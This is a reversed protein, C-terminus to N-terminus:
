NGKIQKILEKSLNRSGPIAFELDNIIFSYGRANGTVNNVKNLNVIFSKHCRIIKCNGNYEQEIKNLSCRIMKKEVHSNQKYFIMCYNGESKVCFLDNFPIKFNDLVILPLTNSENVEHEVINSKNLEEIIELAKLHNKRYLVKERYFVSFLIPLFGVILTKFFVATLFSFLNGNENPNDFLFAYFGNVLGISIITVLTFLISKKIKWNEGDFLKPFLLPFITSFLFMVGFTIFGYAFVKLFQTFVFDANNSPNFAILILMIFLGFSVPVLVKQKKTEYFPFPKNLWRNLKNILAM